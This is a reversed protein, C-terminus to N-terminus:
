GKRLKKKVPSFPLPTWLAAVSDFTIWSNDFDSQTKCYLTSLHKAVLLWRSPNFVVQKCTSLRTDQLAQECEKSIKCPKLNINSWELQRQLLASYHLIYRSFNFSVTQKRWQMERFHLKLKEYFRLFTGNFILTWECLRLRPFRKQRSFFLLILTYDNVM